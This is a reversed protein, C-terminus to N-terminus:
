NEEEKEKFNILTEEIRKIGNYFRVYDKIMELTVLHEVSNKQIINDGTGLFHTQYYEYFDEASKLDDDEKSLVARDLQKKVFKKIDEKSLSTSDELLSYFREIQSLKIKKLAKVLKGDKALHEKKFKEQLEIRIDKKIEEETCSDLSLSYDKKEIKREPVYMM